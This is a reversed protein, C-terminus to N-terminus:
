QHGMKLITGNLGHGPAELGIIKKTQWPKKSDFQVGATNTTCLQIVHLINGVANTLVIEQRIPQFLNGTTQNERQIPQFWNGATNIPVLTGGNQNSSNGAYYKGSYQNFNIKRWIPQFWNRTTTKKRQIKQFWNGVTCMPVLKGGCKNSGIKNMKKGFSYM